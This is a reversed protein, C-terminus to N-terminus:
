PKYASGRPSVIVVTIRLAASDWRFIVRWNGVRLRWLGESGELRKIDGAPLADIGRELRQRDVRGLRRM